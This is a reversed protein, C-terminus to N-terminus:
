SKVPRVLVSVATDVGDKPMHVVTVTDGTKLDEITGDKDGIRIKSQGDIRVTIRDKGDNSRVTLEKRTADIIELQGDLSKGLVVAESREATEQIEEKLDRATQAVKEGAEQAKRKVADLDEKVKEKDITLTVERRSHDFSDATSLNLWGLYFAAGVAVVTLLAFTILLKQM